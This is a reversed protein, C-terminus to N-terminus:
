RLCICTMVVHMVLKEQLCQYLTWNQVPNGWAYVLGESGEYILSGEWFSEVIKKINSATEFEKGSVEPTSHLISYIEQGYEIINM